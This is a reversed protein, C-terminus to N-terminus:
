FLRLPPPEAAAREDASGDMAKSRLVLRLVAANPGHVTCRGDDFCQIVAGNALTFRWGDDDGMRLIKQLPYGAGQLKVVLSERDM